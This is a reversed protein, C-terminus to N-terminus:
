RLTKNAATPTVVVSKTKKSVKLTYSKTTSKFKKNLKGTSFKLAKLKTDKGGWVAGLDKGYGKCTYMVRIEDGAQLQKNKVTYNDFGTNTFWDNLTGMWGSERGGDFEALKNISEIYNGYKSKRIKYKYHKSNLAKKICNTMTDNKSLTVWKDVLKGQWPAGKSKKYTNNEIIVHVQNKHSAASIATPTLSGFVISLILCLVLLLRKKTKM